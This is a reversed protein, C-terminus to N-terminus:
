PVSEITGRECDILLTSAHAGDTILTHSTRRGDACEATLTYQGELLDLTFPTEIAPHLGRQVWAWPMGAFSIRARREPVILHARQGRSLTARRWLTLGERKSELKFHFSGAPLPVGALPTEGLYRGGLTVAMPLAADIDVAAQGEGAKNPLLIPASAVNSPDSAIDDHATASSPADDFGSAGIAASADTDAEFPVDDQGQGRLHWLTAGVLLIVFALIALGIRPTPTMTPKAAKVWTAVPTKAGPGRQEGMDEQRTTVNGEADVAMTSATPERADRVRWEPPTREPPLPVTPADPALSTDVVTQENEGTDQRLPAMADSPPETTRIEMPTSSTVLGKAKEAKRNATGAEGWPQGGFLAEDALKDAFLEQMYHAMASASTPHGHRQLYAELDRELDGATQYRREPEAALAKLVIRELSPDYGPKVKSPAPVNCAVVAHLTELENDRKFLRVGCTIEYLTIGLAFIDTRGDVPDGSAQEPSMYSYKGKLVGARTQNLKGAAKAVGFDILKVHGDFTVLINQPSVDRHVISLPTGDLATHRHAYDLAAAGGMIILAAMGYPISNGRGVEQNYIRRLDEGRVYEMAIYFQGNEEAIDYIQAVNPHVLNAAIRAEDQFMKMFEEQGSLHPLIRKLCVLREFGGFSKQKALLVEAMGGAALKRLIEYNGFREGM